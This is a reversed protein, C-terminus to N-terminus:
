SASFVEGELWRKFALKGSKSVMNDLLGLCYKKFEEAKKDPNNRLYIDLATKFKLDRIWGYNAAQDKYEGWSTFKWGNKFKSYPYNSVFSKLIGIQTAANFLREDAYKKGGGIGEAEYIEEMKKVASEKGTIGLSKYDKFLLKYAKVDEKTVSKGTRDNANPKYTTINRELLSQNTYYNIQWLGISYDQTGINGNFSGPGFHSEREAIMLFLAATEPKFEGFGILANYLADIDKIKDHNNVRSEFLDPVKVLEALSLGNPYSTSGGSSYAGEVYDKYTGARQPSFAIHFHNQHSSNALFDVKKLNRYNKQIIGNVGSSKQTDIEYAGSVIGYEKELRDDFVVLDPLSSESMSSLTELLLNFAKKNNEANAKSLDILDNETKGIHFIDIGRGCSHDNLNEGKGGATMQGRGLDFNGRLIIKNNIALLFEILSACPFLHKGNVTSFDDKSTYEMIEVGKDNRTATASLTVGQDISAFASTKFPINKEAVINASQLDKIKEEFVSIEETTMDEKATYLRIDSQGGKTPDFGFSSTDQHDTETTTETAGGSGGSLNNSLEKLYNRTGFPLVVKGLSGSSVIQNFADSGTLRDKYNESNPDQIVLNKSDAGGVTALM